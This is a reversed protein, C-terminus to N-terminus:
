ARVLQGDLPAVTEADIVGPTPWPDRDWAVLCRILLAARLLIVIALVGYPIGHGGVVTTFYAYRTVVELVEAVQYAFFTPFPVRSLAFWPLLWLSYQPSWLKGVLLLIILLPLALMWRPLEPERRISRRWLWGGIAVTLLPAGIRAIVDPMCAGLGCPIAWVSDYDAPRSSSLRFVTAWSTAALVVFPANGVAFTVAAALTLRGAASRDRRRLREAAFPIVLLAPYLKAIAGVGLAIGSSTDRRRLLLLTAVTAAAVALLDLNTAGSIVLVPAAAFLITRAGLRELCWTTILAALLLASSTVLFFWRYPDTHPESIWAAARLAYMTGVPYEDCPRDAPACPDLFPRRDGLLQESRLLSPIDTYCQVRGVGDSGVWGASACPLKQASGVGMVVATVALM